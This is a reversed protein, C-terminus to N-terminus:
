AESGTARARFDRQMREYAGDRYRSLGTGSCIGCRIRYFGGATFWSRMHVTKGTGDCIRCTGATHAQEKTTRPPM